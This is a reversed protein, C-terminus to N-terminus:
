RKHVWPNEEAILKVMQLDLFTPFPPSGHPWHDRCFETYSEGAHESIDPCCYGISNMVSFIPIPFGSQLPFIGPPFADEVLIKCGTGEENVPCSEPDPCDDGDGGPDWLGFVHGVEHNILSYRLLDREPDSLYSPLWAASLAVSSLFVNYACYGTHNIHIGCQVGQSITCGPDSPCPSAGGSVFFWIKNQDEENETMDSCRGIDALDIGPVSEWYQGPFLAEQIWDTVNSHTVDPYDVLDENVNVCYQEIGSGINISDLHENWPHCAIAAVALLL